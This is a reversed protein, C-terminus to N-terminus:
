AEGCTLLAEGAPWAQVGPDQECVRLTAKIMSCGTPICLTAQTAKGVDHCKACLKLEREARSPRGRTQLQYLKPLSKPKTRQEREPVSVVDVSWFFFVFVFVTDAM